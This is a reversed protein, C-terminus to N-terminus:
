RIPKLAQADALGVSRAPIGAVIQAGQSAGNDGVEPFKRRILWNRGSKSFSLAFASLLFRSSLGLAVGRLVCSRVTKGDGAILAQQLEAHLFRRDVARKVRSTCGLDAIVKGVLRKSRLSHQLRGSPTGRSNSGSRQLIKVVPSRHFAVKGHHAVRLLLEMNQGPNSEDLRGDPLLALCARRFCYAGCKIFMGHRLLAEYVADDRPPDRWKALGTAPSPAGSEDCLLYDAYALLCDPSQSLCAVHDAVRNPLMVDDSDCPAILEGSSAAYGANTAATVGRNPQKLFVVGGCFRERLKPETDRFISETSDTSGDDVFVVEINAYTQSLLGALYGRLFSAGNYCSTVVSVLPYRPM